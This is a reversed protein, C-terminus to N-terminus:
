KLLDKYLKETKILGQVKINSINLDKNLPVMLKETIFHCMM